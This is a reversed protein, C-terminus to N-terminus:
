LKVALATPPSTSMRRSSASCSAAEGRSVIKATRATMANRTRAAIKATAM